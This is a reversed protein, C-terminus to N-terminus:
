KNKPKNGSCSNLAETAKNAFANLFTLYKQYLATCNESVTYLLTSTGGANQMLTIMLEAKETRGAIIEQTTQKSANAAALAANRVADDILILLDFGGQSNFKQSSDRLGKDL